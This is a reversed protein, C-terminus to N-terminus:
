AGNLSRPVHVRLSHGGRLFGGVDALVGSLCWRKEFDELSLEYRKGIVCWSPVEQLGSLGVTVRMWDKRIAQEVWAAALHVVEAASFPQGYKARRCHLSWVARCFLLRVHMWLQTYEAGAAPRWVDLNGVVVM